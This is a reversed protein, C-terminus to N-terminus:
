LGSRVKRLVDEGYQERIREYLAQDAAQRREYLDQTLSGAELQENWIKKYSNTLDDYKFFRSLTMRAPTHFNWDTEEEAKRIARNLGNMDLPATKQMSESAAKGAAQLRAAM